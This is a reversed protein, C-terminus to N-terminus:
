NLFPWFVEYQASLESLRAARVSAVHADIDRRLKDWVKSPDWKAQEIAADTIEIPLSVGVSSFPFVFSNSPQLSLFYTKSCLFAITLYEMYLIPFVHFCTVHNFERLVVKM